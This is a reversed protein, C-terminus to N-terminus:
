SFEHFYAKSNIKYGDTETDYEAFFSIEFKYKIYQGYVDVINITGYGTYTYSSNQKKSTINYNSFTKWDPHNSMSEGTFLLLIAIHMDSFMKNGTEFKYRIEDLMPETLVFYGNEPDCYEKLTNINEVKQRDDFSLRRYVQWIDNIESYPSNENLADIRKELAKVEQSKVCACISICMILVLFIAIFKKYM